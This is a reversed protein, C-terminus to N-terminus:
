KQNNQFAFLWNEIWIPLDQGEYEIKNDNTYEDMFIKTHVFGVGINNVYEIVNTTTFYHDTVEQINARKNVFMVNLLIVFIILPIVPLWDTLIITSQSCDSGKMDLEAGRKRVKLPLSLGESRLVPENKPQVPSSKSLSRKSAKEGELCFSSPKGIYDYKESTKFIEKEIADLKKIEGILIKSDLGAFLLYIKEFEKKNNKNFLFMPVVFILIGVNGFLILIINNKVKNSVYEQLGKKAGNSIKSFAPSFVKYYSSHLLTQKYPYNNQLYFIQSFFNFLMSQLTMNQKPIEPHDKNEIEFTQEM